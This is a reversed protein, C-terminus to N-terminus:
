MPERALTRDHFFLLELGGPGRNFDYGHPGPTVVLDHEVHRARLADSLARTVGLFPDDDSSLLRVRQTGDCLPALADVRDRVAPQIGGVTAFTEPHRLGVELAIMGGLSVGDIGTAGRTQAAFPVEARVAALLPGAIWDGYARLAESGPPEPMLDPTYPTVVLLGRFPQAALAANRAALHEPRVFSQYDASTLRGRALAAFADPLHYDTSWGLFGREPGRRAEGQGHLAVVIPLRERPPHERGDARRAYTVLVRADSGDPGPLHIQRFHVADSPAQARAAPLALALMAMLLGALASRAIAPGAIAPGAVVARPASM